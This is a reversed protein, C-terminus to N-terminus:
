QGDLGEEGLADMIRSLVNCQEEWTRLLSRSEGSNAM